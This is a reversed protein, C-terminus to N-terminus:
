VEGRIRKLLGQVQTEASTRKNPDEHTSTEPGGFKTCDEQKHGENGCMSCVNVDARYIGVNEDKIKIECQDTEHGLEFCYYCKTKPAAYVESSPESILIPSGSSTGVRMRKGKPTSGRVMGSDYRRKLKMNRRIKFILYNVEFFRKPDDSSPKYLDPVFSLLHCCLLQTSIFRIYKGGKMSRAMDRNLLAWRAIFRDLIQDFPHHDKMDNFTNLWQDNAVRFHEQKLSIAFPKELQTEWFDGPEKADIAQHYKEPLSEYLLRKINFKKEDWLGRIKFPVDKPMRKRELLELGTVQSSLPATSVGNLELEMTDCSVVHTFFDERFKIFDKREDSFKLMPDRPKPSKPKSASAEM